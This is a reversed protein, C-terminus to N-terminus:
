LVRHACDGNRWPLPPAQEERLDRVFEGERVKLAGEPLPSRRLRHLLARAFWRRLFDMDGGPSKTGGVVAALIQIKDRAQAGMQVGNLRSPEVDM